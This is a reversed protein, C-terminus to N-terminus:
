NKRTPAVLTKWGGSALPTEALPVDGELWTAGELLDLALDRRSEFLPQDDCLFVLPMARAAPENVLAIFLAHFRRGEKDTMSAGVSKIDFTPRKVSARPIPDLDTHNMVLARWAGDFWPDPKSASEMSGVRLECSKGPPLDTPTFVAGRNKWGEAVLFRVSAIEVTKALAATPKPSPAPSAADTPAPGAADDRTCAVCAGLALVAAAILDLARM